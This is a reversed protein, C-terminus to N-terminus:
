RGACGVERFAQPHARFDKVAQLLGQLIGTVIGIDTILAAKRWIESRGFLGQGKDDLGTLACAVPDSVIEHQAKIHGRGFEKLVAEVM